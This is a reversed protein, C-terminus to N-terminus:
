PDPDCELQAYLEELRADKEPSAGLAEYKDATQKASKRRRFPGSFMRGFCTALYSVLLSTLPSPCKILYKYVKRNRRAPM